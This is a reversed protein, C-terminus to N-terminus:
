IGTGGPLGYARIPALVVGREIKERVAQQMFYIIRLAHSEEANTYDEETGEPNDGCVCYFRQVDQDVCGKEVMTDLLLACLARNIGQRREMREM